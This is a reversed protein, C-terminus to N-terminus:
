SSGATYKYVATAYTTSQLYTHALTPTKHESSHHQAHTKQKHKEHRQQQKSSSSSGMPSPTYVAKATSTKLHLLVYRSCLLITIGTHVHVRELSFTKQKNSGDRHPYRRAAIAVAAILVVVGERGRRSYAAVVAVAVVAEQTAVHGAVVAVVASPAAKANFPNIRKQGHLQLEFCTRKKFSSSSTSSNSMSACTHELDDQFHAAEGMRNKKRRRSKNTM